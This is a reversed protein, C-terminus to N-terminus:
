NQLGAPTSFRTLATRGEGATKSMPDFHYFSDLEILKLALVGSFTLRYFIDENTPTSALRGNFSGEIILNGGDYFVSNLHIADRGVLVGIQTDIAKFRQEEM